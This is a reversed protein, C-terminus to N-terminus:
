YAFCLGVKLEIMARMYFLLYNGLEESDCYFGAPSRGLRNCKTDLDRVDVCGTAFYKECNSIFANNECFTANFRNTTTCPNSPKQSFLQTNNEQVYSIFHHNEDFRDECLSDQDRSRQPNASAGKYIYGLSDTASPNCLGLVPLRESFKM